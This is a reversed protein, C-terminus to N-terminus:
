IIRRTSVRVEGNLLDHAVAEVMFIWEPDLLQKGKITGEPSADSGGYGGGGYGGEGYGENEDPSGAAEGITFPPSLDFALLDGRELDLQTLFGTFDVGMASWGLHKIWTSAVEDTTPLDRLWDFFFKPDDGQPGIKSGDATDSSVATGPKEYSEHQGDGQSYDRWYRPRATNIVDLEPTWTVSLQPRPDDDAVRVVDDLTIVRAAELEEGVRPLRILRADPGTWDFDYGIEWTLRGLATKGTQQKDFAGGGTPAEEVELQWGRTGGAGATARIWGHDSLYQRRPNSGDPIGAEGILRQLIIADVDVLPIEGTRVDIALPPAADDPFEYPIWEPPYGLTGEDLDYETYSKVGFCPTGAGDSFYHPRFKIPVLIVKLRPIFNGSGGVDNDFEYDESLTAGFDIRYTGPTLLVPTELRKALIRQGLETPDLESVSLKVQAEASAEDFLRSVTVQYTREPDREGTGITNFTGSVYEVRVGAILAGHMAETIVFVAPTYFGLFGGLVGTAVTGRPLGIGGNAFRTNANPVAVPM